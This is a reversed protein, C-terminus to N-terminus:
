DGLLADILVGVRKLKCLISNLLDSISNLGFWFDYVWDTFYNYQLM